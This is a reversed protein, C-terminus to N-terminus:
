ALSDARRFNQWDTLSCASARTTVPSMASLWMRPEARVASAVQGLPRDVEDQAVVVEVATRDGAGAALNAIDDAVGPAEDVQALGAHDFQRGAGGQDAVIAPGIAPQAVEVTRVHDEVIEQQDVFQLVPPVMVRQVLRCQAPRQFGQAVLRGSVQFADQGRRCLLIGCTMTAVCM